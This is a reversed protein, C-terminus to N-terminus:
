ESALLLRSGERAWYLPKIGFRDRTAVLRRARLDLLALAWMGDLRDFAAEGWAEFAALAVEGDGTSRFVRGRRTLEERLERFNYIEGNFVIWCTRDPSTLPQAAADSLDLISLRRFGLGAVAARAPDVASTTDSRDATGDRNLLLLGEGDPGRHSLAQHMRLLRRAGGAAASPDLVVAIGCM